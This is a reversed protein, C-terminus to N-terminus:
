PCSAGITGGFHSLTSSLWTITFLLTQATSCQYGDVPNQATAADAATSMTVAGLSMGTDGGRTVNVTRALALRKPLMASGGKGFRMAGKRQRM